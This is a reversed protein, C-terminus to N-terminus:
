ATALSLKKDRWDEHWDRWAVRTQCVSFERSLWVSSVNTYKPRAAVHIVCTNCPDSITRHTCEHTASRIIIYIAVNVYCLRLGVKCCYIWRRLVSARVSFHRHRTYNQHFTTVHESAASVSATPVTLLVFEYLIQLRLSSSDSPWDRDYIAASDCM